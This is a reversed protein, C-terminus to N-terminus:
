EGYIAVQNRGKDRAKFLAVDAREMIQNMHKVDPTFVAVGISITCAIM